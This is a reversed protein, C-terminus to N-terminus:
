IESKADADLKEKIIESTYNSHRLGENKLRILLDSSSLKRVLYVAIAYRRDYDSSWSVHIQNRVIPSIKVFPTINVPRPPGKVKVRPKDTLKSYTLPCINGNVKVSIDPPFYDEQECSTTEQLCFRMQVQVTYEMKSENRCDRSSAIDTAQEANLQFMFTNEQETVSEQQTLSTPKLLEDMVDFFPLKKFKVDLNNSTSTKQPALSTHDASHCIVTTNTDRPLSGQHESPIEIEYAVADQSRQQQEIAQRRYYRKCNMSQDSQTNYTEDTQVYMQDAQMTKYEKVKFMEQIRTNDALSIDYEKRILPQNYYIQVVIFNKRILCSVKVATEEEKTTDIFKKKSVIGNIEVLLKAFPSCSFLRGVFLYSSLKFKTRLSLINEEPSLEHKRTVNKSM